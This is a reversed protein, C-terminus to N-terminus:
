RALGRNPIPWLYKAATAMSKARELMLEVYGESDPAPTEAVKRAAPSSPDTYLLGALDAPTTAFFDATPHADNWLGFPAVLVLRTFREPQLAALEAAFMGGLGHAVLPVDRLDAADLFDLYYVLLDTLDHLQEAGTSAGFGPHSPSITRFGPLDLGTNGW